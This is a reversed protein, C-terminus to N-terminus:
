TAIANQASRFERRVNYLTHAHAARSRSGPLLIEDNRDQWKGYASCDIRIFRENENRRARIAMRRKEGERERERLRGDIPTVTATATQLCIDLSRLASRIHKGLLFM